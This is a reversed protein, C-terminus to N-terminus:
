PEPKVVGISQKLATAIYAVFTPEDFETMRLKVDGIGDHWGERSYGHNAGVYRILHVPVTIM